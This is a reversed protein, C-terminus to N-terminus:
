DPKPTWSQPQGQSLGTNVREEFVQRKRSPNVREITFEAIDYRGRLNVKFHTIREIQRERHRGVATNIDM